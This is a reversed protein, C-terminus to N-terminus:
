PSRWVGVMCPEAGPGRQPVETGLVGTKDGESVFKQSRGQYENHFLNLLWESTM